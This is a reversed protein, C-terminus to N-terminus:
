TLWGKERERAGITALGEKAHSLSLSLSLVLSGEPLKAWGYGCHQECVFVCVQQEHGVFKEVEETEGVRPGHCNVKNGRETQSFGRAHRMM